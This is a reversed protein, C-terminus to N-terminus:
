KAEGNMMEYITVIAEDTDLQAKAASEYLSAIAEDHDLQTTEVGEFRAPAGDVIANREEALRKAAAAEEEAAKRAEEEAAKRAAIEELEAQTYPVYRMVDEYEDWAPIAPAYEQVVVIPILANDPDDPNQWIPEGEEEIRDKESVEDHHAILLKEHELRGLELDPNEVEAGNEDIIRM